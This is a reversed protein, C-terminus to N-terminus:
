ATPPEPNPTPTPRVKVKKESLVKSDTCGKLMWLLEEVVGKWYVNKTTLLPFQGNRLSFRMLCGFKSVTGVGTRDRKTVGSDIVDRVIDLYQQEERNGGSVGNSAKAAGNETATGNAKASGNVAPASKRDAAFAGSNSAAPPSKSDATATAANTTAIAAGSIAAAAKGIAPIDSRSHVEFVYSLPEAPKRILNDETQLTSESTLKFHSPIAPFFTDCKIDDSMVRTFLIENCQPHAIAEKYIEGGGIVFVKEVANALPPTALLELAAALSSCM